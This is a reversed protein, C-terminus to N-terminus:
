RERVFSIEKIMEIISKISEKRKETDKQFNFKLAINRITLAMDEVVDLKFDINTNSIMFKGIALRLLKKHEYLISFAHPALIYKECFDLDSFKELLNILKKKIVNYIKIGIVLKEKALLKSIEKHEGVYESLTNLFDHKDFKMSASKYINKDNRVKVAWMGDLYDHTALYNDYCVLRCKDATVWKGQYRGKYFDHTFYSKSKDDYGLILVEHSHTFSMDNQAFTYVFRDSDIIRKIFDFESENSFVISKDYIQYELFPCCRWRFQAVSLITFM